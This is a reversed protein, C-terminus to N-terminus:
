LWGLKIVWNTFSNLNILKITINASSTGGIVQVGPTNDIDLIHPVSESPAAGSLNWKAVTPYALLEDGPVGFVNIKFSNDGALDSTQGKVAVSVIRVGSPATITSTGGARSASPTGVGSTRYFVILTNDSETEFLPVGSSSVTVTVKDGVRSANVGSGVFDVTDVTGPTGLNSGENQFQIETQHDAVLGDLASKDTASMLGALSSTASPLTVSTGSSSDIDLTTGTQTGLSLNTTGSGGSIIIDGDNIREQIWLLLDLGENGLATTVVQSGMEAFQTTKIAKYGSKPIIIRKLTKELGM